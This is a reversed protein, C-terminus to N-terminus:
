VIMEASKREISFTEALVDMCIWHFEDQDQDELTKLFSTIGAVDGMRNLARGIDFRLNGSHRRALRILTTRTEPLLEGNGLRRVATRCVTENDDDLAPCMISRQIEPEMSALAQLVLIRVQSNVDDIMAAIRKQIAEDLDKAVFSELAATRVHLDPDDLASFAFGDAMEDGSRGLALIAERRFEADDSLTFGALIELGSAGPSRAAGLLRLGLLKLRRKPDSPEVSRKARGVIEADSHARVLIAGLTSKSPDPVEFSEIDEEEIEVQPDEGEDVFLSVVLKEAVDPAGSALGMLAASAVSPERGRTAQVLADLIDQPDEDELRGLISGLAAAAEMRIDRDRSTDNLIASLVQSNEFTGIAGVVEIVDFALRDDHTALLEALVNCSAPDAIRGLGGVAARKINRRPDKLMLELNKRVAEGRFHGLIGIVALRVDIDSDSLLETLPTMAIKGDQASLAEAAAIRVTPAPDRLAVVLAESTKGTSSRIKQEKLALGLARAAKARARESGDWLAELLFGQAVPSDLRGLIRFGAELLHDNEPNELIEVLSAAAAPDGVHGLAELAEAQVDWAPSYEHDDVVPDLDPYGEARVCQLLEPVCEKGTLSGLAKAVQIRVDGECDNKLHDLLPPVAESIGLRGLAAASDARVDPDVDDLALLLADRSKEDNAGLRELARVACCQSLSNDSAIKVYLDELFASRLEEDMNIATKSM